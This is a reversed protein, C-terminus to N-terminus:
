IFPSVLIRALWLVHNRIAPGCKSLAHYDHMVLHAIRESNRLRDSLDLINEACLVVLLCGIDDDDLWKTDLHNKMPQLIGDGYIIATILAEDKETTQNWGLLRLRHAM